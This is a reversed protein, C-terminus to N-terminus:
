DATATTEGKALRLKLKTGSKIKSADSFVHGNEDRIVSYGRDLTSQPSLSVALKRLTDIKNGERELM